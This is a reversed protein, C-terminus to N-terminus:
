CRAFLAIWPCHLWRKINENGLKNSILLLHDYRWVLDTDRLFLTLNNKKIKNEDRGGEDTDSARSQAVRIFIRDKSKARRVCVDRRVGVEM